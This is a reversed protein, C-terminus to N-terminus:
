TAPDDRDALVDLRCLVALYKNFEGAFLRWGASDHPWPTAVPAAILVVGPMARAFELMARKMHYSSTVIVLATVGYQRVWDATERANGSTTHALRGLTVRGAPGADAGARRALGAFSASQGVGSILLRGTQHEGLLRLGAEIRGPAGTLVVIAEVASPPKPVQRSATVFVAFGAVWLLMAVLVLCIAWRAWTKM